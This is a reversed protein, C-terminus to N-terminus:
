IGYTKDKAKREIILGLVLSFLVMLVWIFFGKHTVHESTDVSKIYDGLYQGVFLGLVLTSSVLSSTRWKRFLMLILVIAWLGLSFKWNHSAWKFLYVDNLWFFTLLWYLVLLIVNTVLLRKNTQIM